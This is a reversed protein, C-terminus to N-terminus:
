KYYYCPMTSSDSKGMEEMLIQNIQKDTKGPFSKENDLQYGGLVYSTFNFCMGDTNVKEHVEHDCRHSPRCFFYFYFTIYQGCTTLLM